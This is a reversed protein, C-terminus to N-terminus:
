SESDFDLASLSSYGNNTPANTQPDAIPCILSLVDHMTRRCSQSSFFRHIEVPRNETPAKSYGVLNPDRCLNTEM